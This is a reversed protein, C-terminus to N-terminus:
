RRRRPKLFPLLLILEGGFVILTIALRKSHLISDAPLKSLTLAVQVDTGQLFYTANGIARWLFFTSFVEQRFHEALRVQGYLLLGAGFLTGAVFCIMARTFGFARLRSRRRTSKFAM